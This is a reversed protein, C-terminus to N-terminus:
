RNSLYDELDRSFLSVNSDYPLSPIITVEANTKTKINKTVAKSSDAKDKAAQYLSKYYAISDINNDYQKQIQKNETEIRNVEKKPLLDVVHTKISEFNLMVIIIIIALIIYTKYKLVIDLVNKFNM